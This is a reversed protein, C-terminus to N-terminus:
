LKSTSWLKVQHRKGIKLKAQKMDRSSIVEVSDVNPGAHRFVKRGDTTAIRFGVMSACQGIFLVVWSKAAM